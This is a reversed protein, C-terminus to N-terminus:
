SRKGALTTARARKRGHLLLSLAAAFLLWFSAPLPVPAVPPECDTCEPPPNVPPVYPPVYPTDDDDGGGWFGFPTGWWPVGGYGGVPIVPAVPVDFTPPAPVMISWNSCADLKFMLLQQGDREFWYGEGTEDNALTASDPGGYAVGDKAYSMWNVYSGAPVVMRTPEGMPVNAQRAAWELDCAGACPAGGPIYVRVTAGKVPVCSVTVLVIALALKM